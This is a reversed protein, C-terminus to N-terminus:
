KLKLVLLFVDNAHSMNPRNKSRRHVRRKGCITSPTSKTSIARALSVSNRIELVDVSGVILTVPSVRRHCARIWPSNAGVDFLGIDRVAVQHHDERELVGPVGELQGAFGNSFDALSEMITVCNEAAELSVSGTTIPNLPTCSSGNPRTGNTRNTTFHFLATRLSVRVYVHM